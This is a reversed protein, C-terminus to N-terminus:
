RTSTRTSRRRTRRTPSPATAGPPSGSRSAGGGLPPRPVGAPGPGPRGGLRGPARRRRLGRLRRGHGTGPPHRRARRSAAGIAWPSGPDDPGPDLTNNPGKRNTTGIPHIPPLYVIDFGMQAVAPLRDAATAFTGSTHEGAGESRPFFEYWASFLGLRRDVRVPWPGSTSPHQRLIGLGIFEVIDPALAVALRAGAPRRDDLLAAASERFLAAADSPTVGLHLTPDPHQELFDAAARFLAAGESLELMVDVGAPIKVEARHKWTDLPDHFAEITFSWDGMRDPRWADTRWRNLGPSHHVLPHRAVTLGDPDTILVHVGLSDHGERYCTAEIVIQEGVAGNAPRRGSQVSPWVDTIPFRGAVTPPPQLGSPQGFGNDPM